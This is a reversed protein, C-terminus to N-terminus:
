SETTKIHDNLFDRLEAADEKSLAVNYTKGYSTKITALLGSHTFTDISLTDDLGDKVEYRGITVEHKIQPVKTMPFFYSYNEVLDEWSHGKTMAGWTWGGLSASYHLPTDGYISSNITPSKWQTDRPPEPCTNVTKIKLTESM